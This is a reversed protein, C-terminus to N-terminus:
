GWPTFPRDFGYDDNLDNQKQKRAERKLRESEPLTYVFAYGNTKTPAERWGDAVYWTNHAHRKICRMVLVKEIRPHVTLLNYVPHTVWAKGWNSERTTELMGGEEMMQMFHDITTIDYQM